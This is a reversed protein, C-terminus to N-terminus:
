NKNEGRSQDSKYLDGGTERDWERMEKDEFVCHAKM